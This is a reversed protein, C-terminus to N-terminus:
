ASVGSFNVGVDEGTLPRCTKIAETLAQNQVYLTRMKVQGVLFVEDNKEGCLNVISVMSMKSLTM